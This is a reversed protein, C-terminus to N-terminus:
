AKRSSFKLRQKLSKQREALSFPSFTEPLLRTGLVTRSAATGRSFGSLVLLGVHSATSSDEIEWMPFSSECSKPKVWMVDAIYVAM